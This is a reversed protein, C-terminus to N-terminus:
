RYRQDGGLVKMARNEQEIGHDAGIASFAVKTKNVSFNGEQFFSWCNPDNEKLSSCRHLPLRTDFACLQAMDFSFFYKSLEHLSSLHLDWSQQRTGRLFLLLSEFLNM